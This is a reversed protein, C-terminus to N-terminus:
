IRMPLRFEKESRNSNRNAYHQLFFQECDANVGIQKQNGPESQHLCAMAEIEQAV